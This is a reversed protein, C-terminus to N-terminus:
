DAPFTVGAKIPPTGDPPTTTLTATSLPTTVRPKYIERWGCEILIRGDALSQKGEGRVARQTRMSGAVGFLRVWAPDSFLCDKVQAILTDLRALADAKRAGAVVAQVVIQATVAFAPATGGQSDTSASDDTYVVIRPVDETELPDIREAEVPVAVGEVQVGYGLLSSVTADRLITTQDKEPVPM